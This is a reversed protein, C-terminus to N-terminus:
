LGPNSIATVPQHGYPEAIIEAYVTGTHNAATCNVTIQDGDMCILNGSPRFVYNSISSLSSTDLVVNYNSGTRSTFTVTVTETINTSAKLHVEDLQFNGDFNTTYSLGAASLAQSTSARLFRNIESM